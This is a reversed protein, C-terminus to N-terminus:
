KDSGQEYNYFGKSTKRGYEGRAYHEVLATSPRDAPNQTMHFREMLIHYELDIGTMDLLELPGMPHGLGLKVATDIDEVSAVEQDLLFCAEKTIASFIRNVLFGYIEKKVLVPTKGISRAFEMLTQITEEAVHEGRVVEVLKMVLAPNFFHFNAVREPKRVADAFVSSCLYSSNSAYIVHEPTYRDVERLTSKKIEAVDPVAEIVIDADEAALPLENTYHLRGRLEEAQQQTLKGKELRGPIWSELFAAAREVAQANVDYSWVAYGHLACQIAIQNGMTGCGVVCVKKVEM